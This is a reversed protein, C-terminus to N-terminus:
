FTSEIAKIKDYLLQNVPFSIGHKGGLELVTGSFLEVESHRKAEIDQLMSPKGRPDLGDLVRLWYDIDTEKLPVKEKDSLLLVEKMASIMMEKAPGTECIAGYDYGFVASVQNVGVNLMFKSWLKRRMDPVVEHPLSTKEFFRRVAEVKEGSDDPLATGFCVIGMNKYTLSNGVRIADMGQAVSYLVKDMGFTRGIIEESSIGNLLSIIVTESGVQNKAEEIAATLGGCKVAIILLDAPRVPEDPSVYNFSCLEGNCFVGDRRYKSIRESDAVIRLDEKPIRRSLHGGFLIGLAGLGIISVTKIEM